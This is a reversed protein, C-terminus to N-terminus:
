VILAVRRQKERPPYVDLYHTVAGRISNAHDIFRYLYVIAENLLRDCYPESLRDFGDIGEIISAVYAETDEMTDFNGQGWKCHYVVYNHILAQSLAIGFLPHGPVELYGFDRIDHVYLAHAM